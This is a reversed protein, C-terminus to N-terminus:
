QQQRIKKVVSKDKFLHSTDSETFALAWRFTM